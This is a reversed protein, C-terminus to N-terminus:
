GGAFCCTTCTHEGDGLPGLPPPQPQQQPRAERGSGVAGVGGCGVGFRATVGLERGHVRGAEGRTGVGVRVLGTVGVGVCAHSSWAVGLPVPPLKKERPPLLTVASTSPRDSPRILNGQVSRPPIPSELFLIWRRVGHRRHLAVISAVFRRAMWPLHLDHNCVGM